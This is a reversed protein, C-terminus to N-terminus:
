DLSALKRRPRGRKIRLEPHTMSYAIMDVIEKDFAWELPIEPREYKGDHRPTLHIYDSYKCGLSNKDNWVIYEDPELKYLNVLAIVSVYHRDRDTQSEIWGPHLAFLPRVEM